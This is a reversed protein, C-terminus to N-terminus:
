FYAIPSPLVASVPLLRLAIDFKGAMIRARMQRWTQWEFAISLPYRLFATLSQSHTMYNNKFICEVAWEFIRDLRPLRVVEVSRISGQKRRLAEENSSRVVITVDHLQALAQAESYGILSGCVGEPNADPALLLIRLRSM